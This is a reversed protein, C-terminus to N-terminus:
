ALVLYTKYRMTIKLNHTRVLASPKNGRNWVSDQGVTVTLLWKKQEVKKTGRKGASTHSDYTPKIGQKKPM